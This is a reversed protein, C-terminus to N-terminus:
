ARENRKEKKRAYQSINTNVWWECGYNNVLHTNLLELMEAIWLLLKHVLYVMVDAYGRICAAAILLPSGDRNKLTESPWDKQDESLRARHDNVSISITIDSNARGAIHHSDMITKGQTKRRCETCLKPNSARELALVGRNGASPANRKSGLAASPWQKGISHEWRIV